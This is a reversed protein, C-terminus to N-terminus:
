VKERKQGDFANWKSTSNLVLEFLAVIMGFTGSNATKENTQVCEWRLSSIEFLICEFGTNETCSFALSYVTSIFHTPM